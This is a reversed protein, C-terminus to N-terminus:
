FACHIWWEGLLIQEALLEGARNAGRAADLIGGCRYQDYVRETIRPAGRLAMLDGGISGFMDNIAPDVTKKLGEGVLGGDKSFAVKSPTGNVVADIVVNTGDSEISYTIEVRKDHTGARLVGKGRAEKSVVQTAIEADNAGFAKWGNTADIVYHTIGTAARTAASAEVRENGTM